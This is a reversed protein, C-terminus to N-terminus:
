SAWRRRAARTARRRGQRRGPLRRPTARPRAAAQRRWPPRRSSSARSRSASGSRPPAHGRRVVAGRPVALRSRVRRAGRRGRGRRRGVAAPLAAAGGRRTARADGTRLSGGRGRACRPRAHAVAARARASLRHRARRGRRSARAADRGAVAGRRGRPEHPTAGAALLIRLGDGESGLVRAPGERLFDAVAQDSLIYAGVAVGIVAAAGLLLRRLGDARDPMLLTTAAM